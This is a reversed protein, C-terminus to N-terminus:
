LDCCQFMRVFPGRQSFELDTVPIAHTCQKQSEACDVCWMIAGKMIGRIQARSVNSFAHIFKPALSKRRELTTRVAARFNIGVRGTWFSSVEGSM